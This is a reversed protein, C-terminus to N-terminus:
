AGHSPEIQVSFDGCRLQYGSKTAANAFRANFLPGAFTWWRSSSQGTVLSTKGDSVWAYDERLEELRVTARRSLLQAPRQDALVSRVAQCLAFSLPQGAGLWRSRGRLETPEIFAQRRDWDVHKVLWQRGGLALTM